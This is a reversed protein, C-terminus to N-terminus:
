FFIMVGAYGIQVALMTLKAQLVSQEKKRRQNAKTLSSSSVHSATVNGDGKDSVEIDKPTAPKKDLFFELIFTQKFACFYFGAFINDEKKQKSPSM